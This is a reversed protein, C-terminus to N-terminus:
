GEIEKRILKKIAGQKNEQMWLWHIIDQDSRINLKMYFGTTCKEDYKSQARLQSVPTLGWDDKRAAM